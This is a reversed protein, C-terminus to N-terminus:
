ITSCGKRFGGNEETMLKEAITQVKRSIIKACLKYELNLYQASVAM